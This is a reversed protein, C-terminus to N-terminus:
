GGLMQEPQLFSIETIPFRAKLADVLDNLTHPDACEVFYTLQMTGDRSDLRRFDVADVHDLLCATVQEFLSPAAEEVLVNLYLNNDRRRRNLLMRVAMYGLLLAVGVVTPWRQEAGMGLGIALAIFLFLLEEQEKVATRFRVISLAGVMGLSLALSSKIITIVLTTTLTLVPLLYAFKRRNALSQGYHEYYWAVCLSLVLGLVMNLAVSAVSLVPPTIWNGM